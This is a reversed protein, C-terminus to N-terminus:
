DKKVGIAREDCMQVCVTCGRCRLDDIVVKEDVVSIAPCALADICERCDNCKDYKVKMPKGHKTGKILTCPYKAIIVSVGDHELARKYTDVTKTLNMPNITEVFECGSAKAIQEISIEPAIDGMGDVPIGPNPQGGTMATTRNDLITVVFRHKNHVGNILAPIGGHFFTSDGIFSIIYQDTGASFGSAGGISAGMSIVFDVTEYPPSIGLTYCGIDSSFILNEDTIGLEHAARKVGFYTARHSCGACLTPLRTPLDDRLNALKEDIDLFDSSEANINASDDSNGMAAYEGTLIKNISNRVIDCNFEHILPFTGDLKGFVPIDMGIEGITALVEKEMVPDVEEVIFVGDLEELFDLVLDKPFPYTFGLKLIDFHLKEGNVVDFVYNFASGSSIVGFRKKNIEDITIEDTASDTNNDITSNNFRFVENLDSINNMANIDEMKAVLEGHLGYANQPVAVFQKPNKKFIGKKWHVDKPNKSLKINKEKEPVEDFDVIGRMHSVRTTTRIIVPISFKISIEYGLLMMDKIEQPNSPELVPCNALRAFHRTDQENQSSFMSPEDAVLVVMGGPTGTYVATIFADSAVNMGVHKMFAFSKVGSIASAVAVEMAVKENISFEFFIGADKAIVSLINGIESSPTGPYTAAISVGAEIAGRVTAENGLLFERDGSKGKVLQNLDM